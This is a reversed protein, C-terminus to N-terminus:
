DRVGGCRVLQLLGCSLWFIMSLDALFYSNDVMGHVLFDVMSALLGLALARRVPDSGARLSVRRVLNLAERFYRWLLWVLIIVGMIGLSLWYDLILNHPHSTYSENALSKTIYRAQFQNLFQDIGVGFVPHDRLMALASKWIEIRTSASGTGFIRTPLTPAIKIIVVAVVVLLAAGGGAALWRARVSVRPSGKGWAVGLVVVVLVAVFMGAWAGRSYTLSFTALLPLAALAYVLKRGGKPLFLALCVVFPVVRGLYLALNDPHLYVSQVRKVGEVELLNTGTAYQWLGLLAVGTAAAVFFDAIRWLGRKSKIVDTLLFYFLIPEVIVWRYARASDKAFSPDALTLLSFTGVILMLVAPAAFADEHNWARFRALLPATYFTIRSIHLSSFTNSPPETTYGDPHGTLVAKALPPATYVPHSPWQAPVLDDQASIIPLPATTKTDSAVVLTPQEQLAVTPPAAEHPLSNVSAAENEALRHLPLEDTDYSPMSLSPALNTPPNVKTVPLNLREALVSLGPLARRGVLWAVTHRALVAAFVLLLLTEATPFREQKFEKPYWFFPIALAVFALGISPKLFALLGWAALTVVMAPVSNVRYYLGVLLLMGSVVAANRATERIVESYRGRPRDLAAGAWRGINSSLAAGSMLALLGFLGYVVPFGWADWLPKDYSTIVPLRKSYDQIATYAPRPTFDPNVIAFYNAPELPNPAPERFYWVSMVGMWPWEKAARQYGEILWNAQTQEDVSRGWINKAPDGKFDPPLSIWAYESIWIPKKYDGNEEMVRRLLIPRSFDLYKLDVRRTQPSQGLGYLMTSLIDFYPAAGARYMGELYLVDNENSISDEATPALAASIIAVNPNAAKARRYAEKLLATYEAPDVAHGGWEGKLNPENWIQFYQIKGKYRNVVAAVFDGYDSNRAPPGKRFQEVDDGPMRAWVPPSDLRAIIQIGYRQAANVIYDYKDWASKPDGPNRTDTYNGKASIEIDNWAFGQRIWKFGGDRVMKLTKDVNATDVEKELFTNVGLPSVATYDIPPLDARNGWVVGGNVYDDAYATAGLGALSGAFLLAAIILRALPNATARQALLSFRKIM